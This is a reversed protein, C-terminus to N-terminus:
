VVPSQPSTLRASEATLYSMTSPYREKAYVLSPYLCPGRTAPVHNSRPTHISRPLLSRGQWSPLSPAVRQGHGPSWLRRGTEEVGTPVTELLHRSLRTESRPNPIGSAQSGEQSDQGGDRQRPPLCTSAGM